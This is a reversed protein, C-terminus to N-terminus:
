LKNGLISIGIACELCRRKKCYNGSLEILAQSDLSTRNILQYSNWEKTIRNNEFALQMLWHLAKEQYRYEKIKYGYTFLLPIVTNILLTNVMSSGLRKEKYTGLDDFRYHYLWYDNPLVMLKKQVAFVDDTMKFYEFFHDSMQILTALQALRLTPFSAPRMRLYAPQLNQKELGYKKKLYQYERQLMQPYQEKFPRNLLNSQGMLIAELQQIQNRHNAVIRLPISRAVTEFLQENVTLGMNAALLWWTILEWDQKAERLYESIKKAKKELREVVLREKWAVWTLEKISPLYDACPKFFTHDLM